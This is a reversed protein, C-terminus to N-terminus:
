SVVFAGLRPVPLDGQPEYALDEQLGLIRFGAAELQAAVEAWSNYLFIHDENPATIAATIFGFGGTALRARLAHLYSLPDELHELVEVSIVAPWQQAPPDTIVNRIEGNWRESFGFAAVQRRAYDLSYTSIDYATGVVGECAALAQRSYFGTGVGVDLFRRDSMGQLRPVFERHFYGLQRYHHPWLYHSLLIGPLYLGDMYEQNHYVRKAADDYSKSAYVRDKEFRKHLRVSDLAFRLYGSAAAKLRADDDGFMVRLTEDFAREWPEGFTRRAKPVTDAMYPALQTLVTEFRAIGGFAM